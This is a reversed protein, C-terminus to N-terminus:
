FHKHRTKANFGDVLPRGRIPISCTVGSQNFPKVFDNRFLVLRGMNPLQLNDIRFESLSSSIKREYIYGTRNSLVMPYKIFVFFPRGM